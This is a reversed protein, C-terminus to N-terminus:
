CIVVKRSYHKEIMMEIERKAEDESRGIEKRIEEARRASEENKLAESEVKRIDELVEEERSVEREDEIRRSEIERFRAAEKKIDEKRLEEATEIVNDINKIAIEGSRIKGIMEKLMERLEQIENERLLLPDELLYSLKIRKASGYDYKRSAKELQAAIQAFRHRIKEEELRLRGEEARAAALREELKKVDATSPKEAKNADIRGKSEKERKMLYVLEEAKAVMADYAEKDGKRAELERSLADSLKEVRGFIKKFKGLHKAYAMFATRFANNTKLVEGIFKKLADSENSYRQYITGGLDFSFSDAARKLSRAYAAKQQKLASTNIYIEMEPEEDASELRQCAELFERLAESIERDLKSGKEGLQRVKGDFMSGLRGALEEPAIRDASM